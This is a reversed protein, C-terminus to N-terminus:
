QIIYTYICIRILIRLWRTADDDIDDFGVNSIVYAKNILFKGCVRM